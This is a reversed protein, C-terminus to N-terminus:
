ARISALQVLFTKCMRLDPKKIESFIITPSFLIQNLRAWKSLELLHVNIIILDNSSNSSKLLLAMYLFPALFLVLHISWKKLEIVEM